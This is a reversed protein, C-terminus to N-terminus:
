LLLVALPKHINNNAIISPEINNYTEFSELRDIPYYALTGDYTGKIYLNRNIRIINVADGNRIIGINDLNEQGNFTIIGNHKLNYNIKNNTLRKFTYSPCNFSNYNKRIFGIIDEINDKDVLGYSNIGKM